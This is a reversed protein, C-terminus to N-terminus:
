ILRELKPPHSKIANRRRFKLPSNGLRKRFTNIMASQSSFGVDHAINAFSVNTNRVKDLAQHLRIDIVFQHPTKRTAELFCRHFHSTSMCMIDAMDAVTIKQTLHSIVWQRLKEIDIRHYQRTRQAADELRASVSHIMMQSISQSLQKHSFRALENACSTYLHRFNVNVEFYRPMKFLQHDITKQSLNPSNQPDLLEIPDSSLTPDTASNQNPSSLGNRILLKDEKDVNIVLVKSKNHGAFYQYTNAPIVCGMASSIIDPNDDLCVDVYGNLGLVIQHHELMHEVGTKGVSVVKADM